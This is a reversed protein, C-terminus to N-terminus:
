LEYTCLLNFDGAEVHSWTDHIDLIAPQDPRTGAVVNSSVETEIRVCDSGEQIESAAGAGICAPEAYLQLSCDTEGVDLQMAGKGILRASLDGDSQKARRSLTETLPPPISTRVVDVEITRTLAFRDSTALRGVSTRANAPPERRPSRGYERWALGRVIEMPSVALSQLQKPNPLHSISTRYSAQPTTRVAATMTIDCQRPPLTISIGHNGIHSMPAGSTSAIM